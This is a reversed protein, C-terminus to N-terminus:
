NLRESRLLQRLEREGSGPQGARILAWAWSYHAQIREERAASRQCSPAAFVARYARRLLGKPGVSARGTGAAQAVKARLLLAACRLGSRPYTRLLDMAADAAREGHDLRLELNAVLLLVEDRRVYTSQGAVVRRCSTLAARLWSREGSFIGVERELLCLQHLRSGRLAGGLDAHRSLIERLRHVQKM